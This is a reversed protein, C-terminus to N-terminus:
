RQNLESGCKISKKCSFLRTMWILLLDHCLKDFIYPIKISPRESCFVFKIKNWITSFTWYIVIQNNENWSQKLIELEQIADNYRLCEWTMCFISKKQYSQMWLEDVQNKKADRPRPGPGYLYLTASQSYIFWFTKWFRIRKRPDNNAEHRYTSLSKL